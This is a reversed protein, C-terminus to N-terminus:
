QPPEEQQGSRWDFGDQDRPDGEPSKEEAEANAGDEAEDDADPALVNPSPAKGVIKFARVKNFQRGDDETNIVVKVEAILGAPPPQWFQEPREIGLKRLDRKSTSLARVTLWCDHWVRRGKYPGEIVEFTVKYSLTRNTRTEALKGDSVLCQYTWPPLPEFEDAAETNDWIDNFGGSGGALIDSLTPRKDSSM